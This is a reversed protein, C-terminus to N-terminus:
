PSTGCFVTLYPTADYPTGIHAHLTALGVAQSFRPNDYQAECNKRDQNIRILHGVEHAITAAVLGDPTLSMSNSVIGGVTDINDMCLTVREPNLRPSTSGFKFEKSCAKCRYILDRNIRDIFRDRSNAPWDMLPGVGMNADIAAQNDRIFDRAAEIRIQQDASCDVFDTSSCGSILGFAFLITIRVVFGNIDSM